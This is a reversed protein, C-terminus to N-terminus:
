LAQLLIEELESDSLKVCNGKMSSSKKSNKIIEEFQDKRVGIDALSPIRMSDVLEKVQRIGEDAKAKENQTIIRAVEDFRKLYFEDNNKKLVRVNMEMVVPLLRACIAGHAARYMGGLVGAFGHVAGLKANALAIGGFLSAISMNERAQLDSGDRYAIPLGRSAREIGERCLADTFPNAYISVFPEIVQTLADLGTHATISPPLGITLKPDVLAIHALMLPSRLSIKLNHQISHLVANSTVEAGTGSTTPIAIFPMSRKTIKKGEGIVELYELPSGSNAVMASIAKATDIASGGGIGLFVNSHSENAAQVGNEILSITPEEEVFFFTPQIGKKDLIEIIDIGLSSLKDILNEKEGKTRNTVLFVKDGFTQILDGLKNISEVGFIIQSATSFQFNM